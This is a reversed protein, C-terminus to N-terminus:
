SINNKSNLSAIIVRPHQALYNCPKGSASKRAFLRLRAMVINFVFAIRPLIRPKDAYHDDMTTGKINPWAIMPCHHLDLLFVAYFWRLHTSFHTNPLM